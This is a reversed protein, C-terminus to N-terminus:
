DESLIRRAIYKFYEDVSDELAEQYSGYKGLTTLRVLLEKTKEDVQIVPM